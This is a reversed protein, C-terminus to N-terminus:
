GVCTRNLGSIKCQYMLQEERKVVVDQTDGPLVLTAGVSVTVRVTTDRGVSLSSQEILLRLREALSQLKEQM